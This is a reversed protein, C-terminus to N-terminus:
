LDAVPSRKGANRRPKDNKQVFFPFSANLIGLFQDVRPADPTARLM